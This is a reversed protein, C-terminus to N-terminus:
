EAGGFHVNTTTYIKDFLEKTYFEWLKTDYTLISIPMVTTKEVPLWTYKYLDFISTSIMETKNMYLYTKIIDARTKETMVLSNHYREYLEIYENPKIKKYGRSLIQYAGNPTDIEKCGWLEAAEKVSLLNDQMLMEEAKNEGKLYTLSKNISGIVFRRYREDEETEFKIKLKTLYELM